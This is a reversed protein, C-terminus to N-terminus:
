YTFWERMLFELEDAETQSSVQGSSRVTINARSPSRVPVISDVSSMTPDTDTLTTNNDHNNM